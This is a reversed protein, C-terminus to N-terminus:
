KPRSASSQWALEKLPHALRRSPRLVRPAATARGGDRPPTYRHAKAIRGRAADAAARNRDFLPAATNTCHKAKTPAAQERAHDAQAPQRETPLSEDCSTRKAIAWEYAGSSAGTTPICGRM